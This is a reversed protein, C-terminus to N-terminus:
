VLVAGKPLTWSSEGTKVNEYWREGNEVVKKWKSPTYPGKHNIPPPPLGPPALPPRVNKASNKSLHLPNQTAVVQPAARELEESVKGTVQAKKVGDFIARKILLLIDFVVVGITLAVIIAFYAFIIIFLILMFPNGEGSGDSMSMNVM